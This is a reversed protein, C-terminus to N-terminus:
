RHRNARHFWDIRASDVFIIPIRPAIIRSAQM